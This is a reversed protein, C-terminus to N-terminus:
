FNARLAGWQWNCYFRLLSCFPALLAPCHQTTVPIHVFKYRKLSSFFLGLPSVISLLFLVLWRTSLYLQNTSCVLKLVQLHRFSIISVIFYCSGTLSHYLICSNCSIFHTCSIVQFVLTNTFYYLFTALHWLLLNAFQSPIFKIQNPVLLGPVQAPFQVQIDPIVTVSIFHAHCPRTALSYPVVHCGLV